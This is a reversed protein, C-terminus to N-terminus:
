LAELRCIGYTGTSSSQFKESMIYLYLLLFLVVSIGQFFTDFTVVM